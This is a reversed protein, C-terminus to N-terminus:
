NPIGQTSVSDVPMGFQGDPWGTRSIANEPLGNHLKDETSRPAMRNIDLILKKPQFLAKADFHATLNQFFSETFARFASTEPFIKEGNKGTLFVIEQPLPRPQATQNLVERSLTLSLVSAEM